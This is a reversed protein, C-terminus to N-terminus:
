PAAEQLITLAEAKRGAQRLLLALNERAEAYDPRLRLAERYLAEAEGYRELRELALAANYRPLPDIRNLRMAELYHTLAGAAEGRQLLLNALNNHAAASAPRMTLANLYHAVAEETAGRAALVAGLNYEAVWNGRTVQLARRFLLADDRWLDTQLRAAVALALVLVAAAAAVPLRRGPGLRALDGLGWAIALALGIGPLYTYRDAMAQVGVQVIGIVPLLAVLFWLWGTRLYPRRRAALAAGSLLVLLALAGLVRGAPLSGEPHPYFVALRSPWLTKGLYSAAAVLANSARQGPTFRELSTVMGGRRQALVTMVASGAALLLLPVKEWVVRRRLAPDGAVLRGLPWADLLLLILPLTVGMPKALLALAYLGVVAMFRGAGPKRLYRLYGLLTMMFCLGLLVDKREAIWAVSEVRLPHVAFLAAALLPAWCAGTLGRLLLFLLLAAAAHLLVNVLHHRGPEMGLFQVDAMHSLWALPHWNSAYGVSTFAWWAGPWTLGRAVQRNGAVYLDDDFSFFGHHVTPAFVTITLIVLLLGAATGCIQGRLAAGGTM